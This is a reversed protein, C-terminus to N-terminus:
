HFKRDVIISGIEEYEDKTIWESDFSSISSLLDYAGLWVAYKREPTAIVKIYFKNIEPALAKLEKTLREPLGNFMSTGGSLVINNYIDKIINKDCKQISDCITQGLGNSYKGLMFPDFLAEPCKIRQNNVIIKSGDPLEYEYPEFDKLEEKYDLAVYCAKEKIIQPIAREFISFNQGNESLLKIMYETLDNGSLAFKISAHSISHGDFIPVIQSLSDGLDASIGTFKGISYLSLVASNAIILSPVCFNEFMIQAMKERNEKPNIPSDTLLVRHEIPDVKLEQTFCYEWIKEMEDWNTIVGQNIPYIVNLVGRKAEADAGFFKLEKDINGYKPYGICTPFVSKLYEENNLGLKIYRSGNDIIIIPKDDEKGGEEQKDKNNDKYYDEDKLNNTQNEKNIDENLENGKDIIKKKEEKKLSVQANQLNKNKDKFDDKPGNNPKSNIGGSMMKVRDAFSLKKEEKKNEKIEPQPANPLNENKNKEKESLNKIPKDSKIKEYIKSILNLKNEIQKENIINDIDKIIKTDFQNLNKISMLLQYNKNKIDFNTIINYSINYFLEFYNIVVNIKNIIESIEDKYDKLTTKLKNTDKKSIKLYIDFDNMIEKLKNIEKNTENKFNDIKLKLQNINNKTINEKQIIKKFSIIDHNENHSLECLDCLNKICNNCFSIFREGHTFCNYNKMDYDITKHEKNHQSACLPCFYCNCNGCYNFKNYAIESKNKSCKKCLIKSEDINLLDKIEKLSINLSHDHECKNIKVKYEDFNIISIGNCKPCIVYNLHKLKKEKIFSNNIEDVLITILKENKLYENLKKNKDINQGKYLFFLNQINEDIKISYREFINKMLENDKCQISIQGGKFIFNLTVNAM